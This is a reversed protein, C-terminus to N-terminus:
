DSLPLERWNLRRLVNTLPPRNLPMIGGQDTSVILRPVGNVSYTKHETVVGPVSAYAITNGSDDLLQSKGSGVDVSFVRSMGSPNCADGNPVMAAFTVVGYFSSPESIVRWTSGGAAAELDIWWGMRTNFDITTKTRLDTLQVLNTRQIPYTVGTPLPQTNFGNNNGDLIAAFVQPTSNTIDSTDLLKGSGVTVFRRNLVPHVVALPRSTIPLATGVANTLTALRTPAAYAGTIPTLDLRWLNGFLDGAYAADATFDTRDPVFGQAHAMGAQNTSSGMGTGVKELLAGTKPNVVFFYGAGSNNYGSGFILVWGWKKTKVATPEGYTYGLDPHSFEWLVKGAVLLESTMAAPNTVDIAYYSKGGKGLAGVLVSRWDPTGISGGTRGFDIDFVAPTGDVMPKHSFNPDGRSQLGNVEPIAPTSPGSFLAAPVYAFVEKGAEAGTLSGNIAHLMGSNSGVYVMTPRNAWTTKFASYGPNSADSFPASPPGVARVKSGVIDGVAKTRNRYIRASGAAASSEEHTPDGRLYNLYDASDNGTRYVTDLLAQQTASLTGIRFPTGSANSPNWTVVRRNTNWGT